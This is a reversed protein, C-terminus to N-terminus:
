IHSICLLFLGTKLKMLVAVPIFLMVEYYVVNHLPSLLENM